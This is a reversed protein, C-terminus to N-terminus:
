SHRARHLEAALRSQSWPPSYQQPALLRVAEIVADLRSNLEELEEEIRELREDTRIAEMRQNTQVTRM